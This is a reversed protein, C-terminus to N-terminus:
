TADSEQCVWTCELMAGATTSILQGSAGVIKKQRGMNVAIIMVNDRVNGLSDTITVFKGIFTKYTELRTKVDAETDVDERSFLQYVNARKGQRRYSHSNVNPRTIEDLTEGLPDPSGNLLLFDIPTTVNDDIRKM